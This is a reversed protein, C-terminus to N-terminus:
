ALGVPDRQFLWTLEASDDEVWYDVVAYRAEDGPVQFPEELTAGTDSEATLTHRGSSLGLPLRIWNHQGEVRFEGDVVTVGDVALKLRVTEDEFSQNSM